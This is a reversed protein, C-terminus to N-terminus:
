WETAVSSSAIASGCGFTKFCSDVINGEDDVQLLSQSTWAQVPVQLGAWTLWGICDPKLMALWGASATQVHRYFCELALLAIQHLFLKSHLVASHTLPLVM